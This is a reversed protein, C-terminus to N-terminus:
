WVLAHGSSAVRRSLRGSRAPRDVEASLVATPLAALTGAVAAAMTSTSSYWRGCTMVPVGDHMVIWGYSATVPGIVVVVELEAAHRQLRKVHSRAADLSTYLLFSRGLERNNTALLRWLGSSADPAKSPAFASAVRPDARDAVAGGPRGAAALPERFRAWALLMPSDAARFATFVVRAHPAVHEGPVLDHIGTM